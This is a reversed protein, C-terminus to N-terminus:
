SLFCNWDIKKSSKRMVKANGRDTLLDIFLSTNLRDIQGETPRDILHDSLCNLLWDLLRTTQWFIVLWDSSRSNMSLETARSWDDPLLTQMFTDQLIRNKGDRNLISRQTLFYHHKGKTFRLPFRWHKLKLKMLWWNVWSVCKPRKHSHFRETLQLSYM